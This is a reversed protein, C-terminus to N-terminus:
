GEVLYPESWSYKVINFVNIEGSFHEPSFHINREIDRRCCKTLLTM